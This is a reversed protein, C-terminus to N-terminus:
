ARRSNSGALAEYLNMLLCVTVGTVIADEYELAFHATNSDRHRALRYSDSRFVLAAPFEYIAEVEGPSPSLELPPQLLGAVPVIHHGSHSFYDGVVGLVSVADSAVGIEESAERLATEIPKEEADAVGGPFCIHGPMSINEHRRTLLVTLGTPRVVFPVLVASAIARDRTAPDVRGEHHFNALPAAPPGTRERFHRILADADVDLTPLTFDSEIPIWGETV